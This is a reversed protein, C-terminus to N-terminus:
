DTSLSTANGDSLAKRGADTITYRSTFEDVVEYVILGKKVLADIVKWLGRGMGKSKGDKRAAFHALAKLQSPTM